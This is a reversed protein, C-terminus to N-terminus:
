FSWKSTRFNKAQRRESRRRESGRETFIAIIIFDSQNKLVHLESLHIKIRQHYMILDKSIMCQISGQHANNLFRLSSDQFWCVIFKERFNFFTAQFFTRIIFFIDAIIAVVDNTLKKPCITIFYNWQYNQRYPKSPPIILIDFKMLDFNSKKM